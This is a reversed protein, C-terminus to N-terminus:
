MATAGAKELSTLQAELDGLRMAWRTVASAFLGFKTMAELALEPRAECSAILTTALGYEAAATKEIDAVEARVADTGAPNGQLSINEFPFFIM